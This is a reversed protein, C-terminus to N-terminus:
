KGGIDKATQHLTIGSAVAQTPTLPIGAGITSLILAIFCLFFGVKGFWISDKEKKDAM